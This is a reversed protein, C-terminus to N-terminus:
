FLMVTHVISIVTRAYMLMEWRWVKRGADEEM